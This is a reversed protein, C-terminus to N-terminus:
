RAPSACCDDMVTRSPRNAFDALSQAQGFIGDLTEACRRPSAVPPCPLLLMDCFGPKIGIIGMATDRVSGALQDAKGPMKRLVDAAKTMVRPGQRLGHWDAIGGHLIAREDFPVFVVYFREANQLDVHQRQAHQGTECLREVQQAADIPRM